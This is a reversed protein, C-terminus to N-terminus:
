QIYIKNKKDSKIHGIEFFNGKDEKSMKEWNEKTFTCILGGSTQPDFLVEEYSLGIPNLYEVCHEYNRRNSAGAGSFYFNDFFYLVDDIIPLKKSDIYASNQTNTLCEKLHGILGFGTIDTSSTAQHKVGLASTINNPTTMWKLAKKYTEPKIDDVSKATMCAGFGLPKTITLIDGDKATNNKKLDEKNVIGAVNLGCLLQEGVITHGGEIPINLPDLISKVGKLLEVIEENTMGKTVSLINLAYLPKAGMAYIDSISNCATIQGFTFLDDSIMPFFDMSEVLFQSESIPYISCDENNLGTLQSKSNKNIEKLINVLRESDLKTSCGGLCTQKM